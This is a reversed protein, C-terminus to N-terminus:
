KKKNIALGIWIFISIHIITNLLYNVWPRGLILPILGLLYQNVWILGAVLIMFMVIGALTSWSFIKETFLTFPLIILLFILLYSSSLTHLLKSRVNYDVMESDSQIVSEVHVTDIQLVLSDFSTELINLYDQTKRTYIPLTQDIKIITDIQNQTSDCILLVTKKDILQNKFQISDEVLNKESELPDKSFLDFFSEIVNKRKIINQETDNLVKIIEKNDKCDKKLYEITKIQNIKQNNSYYFSFGLLNDVCFLIVVISLLGVFKSAFSFDKNIFFRFIERFFEM